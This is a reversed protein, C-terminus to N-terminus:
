DTRESILECLRKVVGFECRFLACDAQRAYGASLLTKNIGTRRLSEASHRDDNGQTTSRLVRADGAVAHGLIGAGTRVRVILWVRHLAGVANASKFESDIGGRVSEDFSRFINVQSEIAWTRGTSKSM